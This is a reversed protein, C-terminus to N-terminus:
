FDRRGTFRESAEPRTLEYLAFRHGGELAFSCCPGHPIGFVPGPDLGRGELERMADDLSEVRYVFVPREGELHDALLLPPGEGVRVMAVRAGFAEIAFVLEAGLEGTFRELEAAVEASPMYIFDLQGFAM